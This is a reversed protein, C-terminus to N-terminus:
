PQRIEYKHQNIVVSYVRECLKRAVACIAVRFPKGEARKKEYFVKLEPDYQRAVQAALYFASRLFPNGRKTIKGLYKSNGSQTVKPDIGVYAKFQNSSPFRHFDGVESVVVASLKQAFGPITQILEEENSIKEDLALKELKDVGDKMKDILMELEDIASELRSNQEDMKLQKVLLMLATRHKNLTTRARLLTKKTTNLNKQSIITGEGQELLFSIIQADSKDTKKKRISATIIKKTLIPNIVRFEFGNKVFFDQCILHYKGTSEVGIISKGPFIKFDKVLIELAEKSNEIELDQPVKGPIHFNLKQSSVDIGIYQM